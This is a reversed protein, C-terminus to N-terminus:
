KCTIQIFNALNCLVMKLCGELSIEYMIVDSSSPPKAMTIGILYELHDLGRLSNGEYAIAVHLFQSSCMM